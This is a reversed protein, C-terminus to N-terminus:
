SILPHAELLDIQLHGLAGGAIETVLAAREGADMQRLYQEFDKTGDPWTAKTTDILLTFKM